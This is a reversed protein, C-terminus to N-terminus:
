NTKFFEGGSMENARDLREELHRREVRTQIKFDLREEKPHKMRRVVSENSDNRRLQLRVRERLVPGLWYDRLAWAAEEITEFSIYDHGDVFWRSVSKVRENAKLTGLTIYGVLTGLTTEVRVFGEEVKIFHLDGPFKM